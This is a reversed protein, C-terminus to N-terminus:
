WIFLDYIASFRFEVTYVSPLYLSPSYIDGRCLSRQLISCVSLRPSRQCSCRSALHRPSSRSCAPLLMCGVLGLSPPPPPPPAADCSYPRTPQGPAPELRGERRRWRWRPLSLSLASRARCLSTRLFQRWAQSKMESAPPRSLSRNKISGPECCIKKM